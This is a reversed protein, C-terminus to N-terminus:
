INLKRAQIILVAEEETLCINDGSDSKALKLTSGSGDSDEESENQQRGEENAEESENRLEEETDEESNTQLKEEENAKEFENQQRGEENAEEEADEESNTQLKEEAIAKESENEQRGEENAEEAEEVPEEEENLQPGFAGVLKARKWIELVTPFWCKSSSCSINEKKMDEKEVIDEKEMDVSDEKEEEEEETSEEPNEHKGNSIIPQHHKRALYGRVHSQLMLVSKAMQWKEKEFRSKALWRRVCSQVKVIKDITTHFGFGILLKKLMLRLHEREREGQPLGQNQWPGLWGDESSSPPTSLEGKFAVVREDFNFALFCYRFPVLFIFMYRMRRLFEAFPIRHSFGHQRIRVTEMVGAYRLQQEVKSCCFFNPKKEDNPKICRIFHPMGNVMKQLLDMLSYRFYTAVTQQAKTQSALGRSDYQTKTNRGFSSGFAPSHCNSIPNMTGRPSNRPTAYFLNGTKTLPCQFLIQIIELSSQRLLQIIETPLFNKNKELFKNGDYTVRGAFHRITFELGQGKPRIYYKSKINCHFKDSVCPHTVHNTM